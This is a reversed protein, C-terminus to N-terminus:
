PAARVPRWLRSALVQRLRDPLALFTARGLPRLRRRWVDIALWGRVSWTLGYDETEVGETAWVLKYPMEPGLLDVAMAGHAFCAGRSQIEAAPLPPGSKNSFSHRQLSGLSWAGPQGFM